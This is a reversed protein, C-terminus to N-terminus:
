EEFLEIIIVAVVVLAFERILLGAMYCVTHVHINIM